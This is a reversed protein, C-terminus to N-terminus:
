SGSVGAEGFVDRFLEDTALPKVYHRSFGAELARRKDHEQGYGTVAVFTVGEGLAARLEGVLEYGDMVPLGIDLIAIEPLFDSLLALAQPGDHAIRVDHGLDALLEALMQAADVNDDVVLVRRPEVRRSLSPLESPSCARETSLAPLRVEFESGCGLGESRGHVMGGHMTVLSRALGLGLGLGGGARDAGREGQVFLDFILPLREPAIGIGDDRIRVVIEAGERRAEVDVHGGPETYRAANELLNALAQSLRAEDAGVVLGSAPVDVRLTHLKKEFLPSATEIAREVVRALEIPRPDLKIKGRTIRSVDLLDDVLSVLHHVQREIVARERSSAADGKHRMLYLATLIPSLPNRLEHGLMALIEDKRRDAELASGRARVVEDELVKREHEHAALLALRDLALTCQNAFEVAAEAIEFTPAGEAEFAFLLVGLPGSGSFAKSRSSRGVREAAHPEVTLPFCLLSGPRLDADWSLGGFRADMAARSALWIPQKTRFAVTLPMEAHIPLATQFPMGCPVAGTCALIDLTAGDLAPVALAAWTAGLAPRAAGVVVRGVESPSSAGALATATRM